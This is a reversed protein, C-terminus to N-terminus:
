ELKEGVIDHSPVHQDVVSFEEGAQRLVLLSLDQGAVRPWNFRRAPVSEVGLVCCFLESGSVNVAFLNGAAQSLTSLGAM